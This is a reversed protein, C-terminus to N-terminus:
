LVVRKLLLVVHFVHLTIIVRLKGVFRIIGALIIIILHLGSNIVEVGLIRLFIVIKISM